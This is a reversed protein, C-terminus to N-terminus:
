DMVITDIIDMRKKKKIFEKGFLRSNFCRSGTYIRDTRSCDPM